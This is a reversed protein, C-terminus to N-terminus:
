KVLARVWKVFKEIALGIAYAFLGLILFAPLVRWSGQGYLLLLTAAIWFVLWCLRQGLTMNELKERMNNAAEKRFTFARSIFILCQVVNSYQVRTGDNKFRLGTKKRASQEWVSLPNFRPAM